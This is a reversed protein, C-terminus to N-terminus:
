QSDSVLVSEGRAELGGELGGGRLFYVPNDCYSMPHFGVLAFGGGEEFGYWGKM